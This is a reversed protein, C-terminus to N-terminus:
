SQRYYRNFIQSKMFNIPKSQNTVVGLSCVTLYTM